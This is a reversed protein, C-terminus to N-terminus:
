LRREGLGRFVVGRANGGPLRFITNNVRFLKTPHLTRMKSPTYTYPVTFEIRSIHHEISSIRHEISSIHHMISSMSYEIRSM